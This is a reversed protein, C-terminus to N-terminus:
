SSSQPKLIGTKEKKKKKETTNKKEKQPTSSMKYKKENKWWCLAVVVNSLHSCQDAFIDQGQIAAHVNDDYM